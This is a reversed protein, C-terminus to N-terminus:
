LGQMGYSELRDRATVIEAETFLPRFEPYLVHAEVTLDLRGKEWLTVFGDSVAATALLQRATAVGGQESVMQLFRAAVYGVEDKARRYIEVMAGHFRRELTPSDTM